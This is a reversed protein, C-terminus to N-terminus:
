GERERNLVRVNRRGGQRGGRQGSGGRGTIQRWLGRFWAVVFGVLLAVFGVVLAPILILLALGLMLVFGVFVAVRAGLTPQRQAVAHLNM